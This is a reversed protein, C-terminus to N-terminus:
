HEEMSLGVSISASRGNGFGLEGGIGLRGEGVGVDETHLEDVSARGLGNDFDGVVFSMSDRNSKDATREHGCLGASSVRRRILANRAVQRRHLVIDLNLSTGLLVEGEGKGLVHLGLVNKELNDGDDGIVLAADVLDLSVVRSGRNDLRRSAEEVRLHISVGM